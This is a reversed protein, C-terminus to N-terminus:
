MFKLPNRFGKNQWLKVVAFIHLKKISCLPPTTIKFLKLWLHKLHTLSLAFIFVLGCYFSVRPPASLAPQRFRPSPPSPSNYNASSSPASSLSAAPLVLFLSRALQSRPQPTGGVGEYRPGHPKTHRRQRRPRPLPQHRLHRHHRKRNAARRVFNYPNAVSPLPPRHVCTAGHRHVADCARAPRHLTAVDM